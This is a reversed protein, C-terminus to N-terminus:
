IIIEMAVNWFQSLYKSFWEHLDSQFQEAPFIGGYWVTSAVINKYLCM